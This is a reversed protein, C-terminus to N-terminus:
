SFPLITSDLAAEAQTAEFGITALDEMAREEAAAEEACKADINDNDSVGGSRQPEMKQNNEAKVGLTSLALMANSMVSLASTFVKDGGIEELKAPTVRSRQVMETALRGPNRAAPDALSLMFLRVCVLVESQVERGSTLDSCRCGCSFLDTMIAGERLTNNHVTRNDFHGEPRGEPSCVIGWVVPGVGDRPEIKVYTGPLLIPSDQFQKLRLEAPKEVRKSSDGDRAVIGDRMYWNM